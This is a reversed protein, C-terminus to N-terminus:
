HGSYSVLLGGSCLLVYFSALATCVMPLSRLHFATICCIACSLLTWLAFTRAYIAALSNILIDMDGGTSPPTLEDLLSTIANHLLSPRLYGSAVSTARLSAVLLLWLKLVARRRLPGTGGAHDKSEKVLGVWLSRSEGAFRPRMARTLM